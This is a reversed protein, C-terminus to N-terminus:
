PEGEAPRRYHSPPRSDLRGDPSIRRQALAALVRRAQRNPDAQQPLFDDMQCLSGNAYHLDVRRDAVEITADLAQVQELIPTDSRGTNTLEVVWDVAPFRDFRRLQMTVRLGSAPRAPHPQTLRTSM